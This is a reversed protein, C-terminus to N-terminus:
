DIDMHCWFSIDVLLLSNVLHCSLDLSGVVGSKSYSAECM